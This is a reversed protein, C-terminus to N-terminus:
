DAPKDLVQAIRMMLSADYAWYATAILYKSTTSGIAALRWLRQRTVKVSLYNPNVESTDM